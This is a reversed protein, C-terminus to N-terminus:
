REWTDITGKHHGLFVTPGVGLDDLQNIFQKPLVVDVVVRKGTLREPPGPAVQLVRRTAGERCHGDGLGGGVSGRIGCWLWPSYPRLLLMLLTGSEM